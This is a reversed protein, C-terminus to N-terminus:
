SCSPASLMQWRGCDAYEFVTVACYPLEHQWPTGALTLLDYIGERHTVVLLREGNADRALRTMSAEFDEDYRQPTEQMQVGAACYALAESPRLFGQTTPRGLAAASSASLSTSASTTSTSTCSLVDPLPEFSALKYKHIAAACESLGPVFVLPLKLAAAIHSATQITRTCPSVFVSKFPRREHVARMREGAAMAQQVGNSTLPPDWWPRDNKVTADPVEDLREAHRVVFVETRAAFQAAMIEEDLSGDESGM